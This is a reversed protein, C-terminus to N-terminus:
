SCLCQMSWPSASGRQDGPDRSFLSCGVKQLPVVSCLRLALPGREKKLLIIEAKRSSLPVLFLVAALVM